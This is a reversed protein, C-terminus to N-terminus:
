NTIILDRNRIWFLFVISCITVSIILTTIFNELRNETPNDTIYLNKTSNNILNGLSHHDDKRSKIWSRRRGCECIERALHAAGHRQEEECEKSSGESREEFKHNKEKFDTNLMEDISYRVSNPLNYKLPSLLGNKAESLFKNSVKTKNPLDDHNSVLEKNGGKELQEMINIVMLLNEPPPTWSSEKNVITM